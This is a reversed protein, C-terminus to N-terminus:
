LEGKRLAVPFVLQEAKVEVVQFLDLLPTPNESFRLSMSIWIYLKRIGMEKIEVLLMICLIIHMTIHMHM